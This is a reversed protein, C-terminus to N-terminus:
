TASVWAATTNRAPSRAQLSLFGTLRPKRSKLVASARAAAHARSTSSLRLNAGSTYRPTASIRPGSPRTQSWRTSICRMGTARRSDAITRECTGTDRGSRWTARIRATQCALAARPGCMASCPLRSASRRRQASLTSCVRFIWARSAGRSGSSGATMSSVSRSAERNRAPRMGSRSARMRSPRMTSPCPSRSASSMKQRSSPGRIRSQRSKSSRSRQSSSSSSTANRAMSRSRSPAGSSASCNM